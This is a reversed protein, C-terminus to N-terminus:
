DHALGPTATVINGKWTALYFLDRNRVPITDGGAGGGLCVGDDPLYLTDIVTNGDVYTEVTCWNGPVGDRVTASPPIQKGRIPKAPLTTLTWSGTGSFSCVEYQLDTTFVFSGDSEPGPCPEVRHVTMIADDSDTVTGDTATVTGVNVYTTQMPELNEFGLHETLPDDVTVRYPDDSPTSWLENNGLDLDDILTKKNAPDHVSAFYVSIGSLPGRSTNTVSIDFQIEDGVSNAWMFGSSPQVTVDLDTGSPPGPVGPRKASAPAALGAVLLAVALVIGIRRHM